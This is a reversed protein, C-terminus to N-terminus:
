CRHKQITRNVIPHSQVLLCLQMIGGAIVPPIGKWLGSSVSTFSPDKVDGCFCKLVHRDSFSNFNM